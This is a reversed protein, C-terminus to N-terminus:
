RLISGRLAYRTPPLRSIGALLSELLYYEGTRFVREYLAKKEGKDIARTSESLLEIICTPFRMGEALGGLEEAGAGGRGHSFFDPGRFKKRSRPDYHLFMNGGVYYNHRESWHTQLSQILVEMQERHRPTEMPEGDDYPLDDETPLTQIDALIDPETIPETFSLEELSM